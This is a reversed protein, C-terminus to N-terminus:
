NEASNYTISEPSQGLIVTCAEGLTKRAWGEPLDKKHKSERPPLGHIAEVHDDLVMSKHKRKGNMDETPAYNM